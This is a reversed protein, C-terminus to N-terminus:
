CYTIIGITPKGKTAVPKAMHECGKWEWDEMPLGLYSMGGMCSAIGHM